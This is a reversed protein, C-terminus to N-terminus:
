SLLEFYLRLDLRICYRVSKAWVLNEQCCFEREMEEKRPCCRELGAGDVVRANRKGELM